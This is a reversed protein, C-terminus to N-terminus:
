WLSGSRKLALVQQAKRFDRRRAHRFLLFLTITM